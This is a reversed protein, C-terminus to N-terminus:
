RCTVCVKWKSHWQKVTKFANLRFVQSGLLKSNYVRRSGAPCQNKMAREAGRRSERLCRSESKVWCVMALTQCKVTSAAQANFIPSFFLLLLGAFLLVFNKM